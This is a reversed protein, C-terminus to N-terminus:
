IDLKAGRCLVVIFSLLVILAVEFDGGCEKHVVLSCSLDLRKRRQSRRLVLFLFPLPFFSLFFSFSQFVQHGDLVNGIVCFTRSIKQCLKSFPYSNLVCDSSGPCPHVM